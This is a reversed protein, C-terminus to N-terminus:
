AGDGPCRVLPARARGREHQRLLGLDLRPRLPSGPPLLYAFQEPIELDRRLITRDLSLALAHLCLIERPGAISSMTGDAFGRFCARAESASCTVQAGDPYRE